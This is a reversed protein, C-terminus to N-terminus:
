AGKSANIRTQQGYVNAGGQLVNALAGVYGARRATKGQMRNVRASYDAQEAQAGYGRAALSGEYRITLADLEADDASQEQVLAASGSGPDVGSQAFAARQGGLIERARRRQMDERSGAQQYAITAQERLRDAEYQDATSRADYGAAQANGSVISGVAGVAASAMMAWSVPEM